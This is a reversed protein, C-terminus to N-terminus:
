LYDFTDLLAVVVYDLPLVRKLIVELWFTVLKSGKVSKHQKVLCPREKVRSKNSGEVM